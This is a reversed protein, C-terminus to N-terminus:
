SIFAGHMRPIWHCGRTYVRAQFRAGYLLRLRIARFRVRYFGHHFRAGHMGILKALTLVWQWGKQECRLPLRVSSTANRQATRVQSETCPNAQHVLRRQITGTTHTRARAHTRTHTHPPTLPNAQRVPQQANSPTLRPADPATATFPTHSTAGDHVATTTTTTTHTHTHTPPDKCQLDM